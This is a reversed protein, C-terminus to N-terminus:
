RLEAMVQPLASFHEIIASAGLDQVPQGSYGFTVAVSPIGANLAANIDTESDGIMVADEITYGALEATKILHRADPKRFAFSDGGTTALFRTSVGLQDLLPVAMAHKKNTCVAFEWGASELSDMAELLGDFLRTQNVLNKSYDELFVDLLTDHTIEDLQKGDLEFARAIMAKAGHGVIQGIHSLQMASIGHPATTRNLTALLDPATDALTGDLDFIALKKM